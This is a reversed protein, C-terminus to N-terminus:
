EGAQNEPCHASDVPVLHRAKCELLRSKPLDVVTIQDNPDDFSFEEVIYFGDQLWTPYLM